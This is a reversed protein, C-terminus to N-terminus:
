IHKAAYYQFWNPPGFLKRYEEATAATLIWIGTGNESLRPFWFLQAKTFKSRTHDPLKIEIWRQKHFKHTAYVDPFGSQMVSGHTPKCVWGQNELDDMITKQLQMEPDNKGSVDKPQM